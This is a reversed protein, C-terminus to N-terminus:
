VLVRGDGRRNDIKESYHHQILTQDLLKIRWLVQEFSLGSDEIAHGFISVKNSGLVVVCMLTMSQQKFGALVSPKIFQYPTQKM